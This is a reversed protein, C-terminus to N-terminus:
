LSQEGDTKPTCSLSRASSRVGMSSDLETLAAWLDADAEM